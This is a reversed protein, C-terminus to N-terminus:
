IFQKIGRNVDDGDRKKQKEFEDFRLDLLESQLIRKQELREKRGGDSLPIVKIKDNQVVVKELPSELRVSVKQELLEKKLEVIKPVLFRERFKYLILLLKNLESKYFEENNKYRNLRHAMKLILKEFENRSYKFNKADIPMNIELNKIIETLNLYSSNLRRYLDAKRKIDGSEYHNCFLFFKKELNNLTKLKRLVESEEKKEENRSKLEDAGKKLVVAPSTENRVIKDLRSDQIEQKLEQEYDEFPKNVEKFGKVANSM